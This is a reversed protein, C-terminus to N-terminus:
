FPKISGSAPSDTTAPSPHGGLGTRNVFPIVRIGKQSPEVLPLDLHDNWGLRIPFFSSRTIPPMVFYAM